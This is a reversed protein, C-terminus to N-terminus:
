IRLNFLVRLPWIKFFLYIWIVALSSPVSTLKWFCYITLDNGTFSIYLIRKTKFWNTWPWYMELNCYIRKFSWTLICNVLYSYAANSSKVVCVICVNTNISCIWNGFFLVYIRYSVVNVAFKNRQFSCPSKKTYIKLKFSGSLLWKRNLYKVFFVHMTM